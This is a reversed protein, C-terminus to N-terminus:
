ADAQHAPVGTQPWGAMAIGIIRHLEATPVGSAAQVSIGNSVTGFYRVLADVDTGPPLEGQWARLHVLGAVPAATSLM